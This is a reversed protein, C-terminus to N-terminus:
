KRQINFADLLTKISQAWSHVNGYYDSLCMVEVHNGLKTKPIDKLYDAVIIGTLYKFDGYAQACITEDADAAWDVLKMIEDATNEYITYSTGDCNDFDAYFRINPMDKPTLDTYISSWYYHFKILNIYMDVDIKNYGVPAALEMEVPRSGSCLCLTQSEAIKEYVFYSHYKKWTDLYEPVNYSMDKYSPIETIFHIKDLLGYNRLLDFATVFEKIVGFSFRADRFWTVRIQMTKDPLTGMALPQCVLPKCNCDDNLSINLAGLLHDVFEEPRDYGMYEGSGFDLQGFISTDNSM